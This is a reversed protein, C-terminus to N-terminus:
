SLSNPAICTVLGYFFIHGPSVWPRLGWSNLQNRRRNSRVSRYRRRSGIGSHIQFVNHERSGETCYEQSHETSGDGGGRGDRWGAKGGDGVGQQMLRHRPAFGMINKAKRRWARSDQVGDFNAAVGRVKVSPSAPEATTALFSYQGLAPAWCM